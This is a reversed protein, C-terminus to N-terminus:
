LESKLRSDSNDIAKQPSLKLNRNIVLSTHIFSQLYLIEGIICDSMNKKRCINSEWPVYLPILRYISCHEKGDCKGSMEKQKREFVAGEPRYM